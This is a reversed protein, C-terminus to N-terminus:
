YFVYLVVRLMRHENQDPCINIASWHYWGACHEPTYLGSVQGASHIKLILKYPACSAQSTLFTDAEIFPKVQNKSMPHYFCSQQQIKVFCLDKSWSPLQCESPFHFSYKERLFIRATGTLHLVSFVANCIFSLLRISNQKMVYPLCRSLLIFTETLTAAYKQQKLPSFSFDHQKRWHYWLKSHRSNADSPPRCPNTTINKNTESWTYSNIAVQAHRKVGFQLPM